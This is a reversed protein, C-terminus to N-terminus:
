ARGFYAERLWAADAFAEAPGSRIVRGTELVYVHTAVSLSEQANQEVLLCTVGRRNIEVLTDFLESVLRPMLGTSPEDLMLLRPRAMLGRGIAVMQQEGGSLTGALQRRRERLRPFLELVWAVTDRRGARAPAAYAGLELNDEVTMAPFLRRGEPVHAIGLEAIRHIPLSSIERGDFRISGATPRLLGSVARLATTKGAGNGGLLTTLSGPEVRLSVGHLVRLDGYAVDVADVALVPEGM